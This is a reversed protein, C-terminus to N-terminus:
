SLLRSFDFEFDSVGFANKEKPGFGTVRRSFKDDDGVIGESETDLEADITHHHHDALESPKILFTPATTVLSNLAKESEEEESDEKFIGVLREMELQDEDEKEDVFLRKRTSELDNFKERNAASKTELPLPHSMTHRNSQNRSECMKNIHSSKVVSKNLIEVKIGSGKHTLTNGRWMTSESKDGIHHLEEAQGSYGNQWGVVMINGDPSAHFNSAPVSESTGVGGGVSVSGPTSYFESPYSLQSTKNVMAQPSFQNTMPSHFSGPGHMVIEHHSDDGQRKEESSHYFACATGRLCTKSGGYSQDCPNTRYKAPHYLKECKSHAFNCMMINDCMEGYPCSKALYRYQEPARRYDHVRHAYLCKTWEHNIGKNLKPCWLTKYRYMYFMETPMQNVLLDLDYEQQPQFNGQNNIAPNNSAASTATSVASHRMRNLNAQQGNGNTVLNSFQPTPFNQCASVEIFAALRQYHNLTFDGLYYPEFNYNLTCIMPGYFNTGCLTEFIRAHPNRPFRYGECKLLLIQISWSSNLEEDMDDLARRFVSFGPNVVPSHTRFVQNYVWNNDQIASKLNSEGPRVVLDIEFPSIHEELPICLSIMRDKTSGSYKRGSGSTGPLGAHREVPKM